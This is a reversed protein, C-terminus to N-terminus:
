RGQEATEEILESLRKVDEPTLRDRSVNLLAAVARPASNEFFTELLNEIAAQCAESQPIAPKYVYEKGQAEHLLHGKQELIRILKRVSTDSPPDPMAAFVESATAQGKQYIIEMIQRERKSLGHYPSRQM